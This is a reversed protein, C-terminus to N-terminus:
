KGFNSTVAPHRESSVLIVTFVSALFSLRLPIRASNMAVARKTQTPHPVTTEMCACCNLKSPGLDSSKTLVTAVPGIVKNTSNGDGKAKGNSDQRVCDGGDTSPVDVRRDRHSQKDDPANAWVPKDPVRKSLKGSSEEPGENEPAAGNRILLHQGLIM